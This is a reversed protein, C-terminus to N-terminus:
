GNMQGSACSAYSYTKGKLLGTKLLLAKYRGPGDGFSGVYKGSFLLNSLYTLNEFAPMLIVYTIM